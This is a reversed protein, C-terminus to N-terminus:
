YKKENKIRKIINELKLLGRELVEQEEKSRAKLENIGKAAISYFVLDIRKYFELKKKYEERLRQLINEKEKEKEFLALVFSDSFYFCLRREKNEGVIKEDKFFYKLDNNLVLKALDYAELERTINM